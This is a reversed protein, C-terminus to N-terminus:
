KINNRKAFLNLEKRLQIATLKIKRGKIEYLKGEIQQREVEFYMEHEVLESKKPNVLNRKINKEYKSPTYNTILEGTEMDIWNNADNEYMYVSDIDNGTYISKIYDEDVIKKMGFATFVQHGRMACFINDMAAIFMKKETKKIPFGNVDIKGTDIKKGTSSHMKTFYKFLEKTIGPTAKKLKQAAADVKLNNDKCYKLWDKLMKEANKYGNLLIHAHPHYKNEVYNYTCELKKIGKLHKSLIENEINLISKEIIVKDNTICKKLKKKLTSLKSKLCKIEDKNQNYYQRYFTNYHILDREINERTCTVFTLTLFQPDNMADIEAGYGNMLNATKIRNCVQCFRNKCYASIIKNDKVILSECCTISNCYSGKLPSNLKILSPLIQLTNYKAAARRLLIKNTKEDFHSSNEIIYNKRLLALKDLNYAREREIQQFEKFHLQLTQNKQEIFEPTNRLIRKGNIFDKLHIDEVTISDARFKNIEKIKDNASQQEIRTKVIKEHVEDPTLKITNPLWISLKEKTWYNSTHFKNKEIINAMM